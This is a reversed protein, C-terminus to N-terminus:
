KLQFTLQAKRIVPQRIDIQRDTTKGDMQRDMRETKQTKLKKELVAPATKVL